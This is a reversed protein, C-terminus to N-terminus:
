SHKRCPRTQQTLTKWIPWGTRLRRRIVPAAIGTVEAWEEMRAQAVAAIAFSLDGEDNRNLRGESFNQQAKGLFQDALRAKAETEEM